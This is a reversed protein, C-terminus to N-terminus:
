ADAGGGLQHRMASSDLLAWHEVLKGDRVRVLDLGTVECSRGSSADTARFTYRNTSLDGSAINNEITVSVDRLGDYMHGWKERWAVIGQHDGLLGGRHDIVDPDILALAEAARGTGFLEVIRRHVGAASIASTEQDIQGSM